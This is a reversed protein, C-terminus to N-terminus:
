FCPQFWQCVEILQSIKLTAKIRHTDFLQLFPLYKPRLVSM